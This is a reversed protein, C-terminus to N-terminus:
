AARVQALFQDCERRLKETQSALETVSQLVQEASGGSQVSANRVEEIVKNLEGTKGSTEQVNRAIERTAEGQSGVSTAIASAIANVEQTAQTMAGICASAEQSARQVNAIQEAVDATARATQEALSKVEQAVVAFGRGQEGARAAEITANLALMNTQQAIGTIMAVIGGIHDIAAVLEAVRDRTTEAERAAESSVQRSRSAQGGIEEVSYTLEEAAAAVSQVNRSATEAARAGIEAQEGSYRAEQVLSRAFNELQHTSQTVAEVVGGVATEFKQALHQMSQSRTQELARRQEEREANQSQAAQRLGNKVVDVARAMEALEDQRDLGPLVIDYNGRAMEGLAATMDKLRRSISHGIFWAAGLFLALLPAVLLATREVVGIVALMTDDLYAGSGIMLGLEPVAEVYSTKWHDGAVGPKKWKYVTYGGGSARAQALMDRFPFGGDDDKIDLLSRGEVEPTAPSLRMVGDLDIVFYYGTGGFRIPRFKELAARIAAPKDTTAAPVADQLLARAVEVEHRLEARGRERTLADFEHLAMAICISLTVLALLALAWVRRTITLHFDLHPMAATGCPQSVDVMRMALKRSVKV